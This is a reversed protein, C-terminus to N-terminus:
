FRLTNAMASNYLSISARRVAIEDVHAIGIRVTDVDVPVVRPVRVAIQTGTEGSTNM